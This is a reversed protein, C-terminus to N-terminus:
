ALTIVLETGIKTRHPERMRSLSVSELHLMQIVLTYLHTKLASMNTAYSIVISTPGNASQPLVVRAYLFVSPFLPLKTFIDTPFYTLTSRCFQFCM